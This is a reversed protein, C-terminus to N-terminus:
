IRAALSKTPPGHEGEVAERRRKPLDHVRVVPYLTEVLLHPPLGLSVGLEAALVRFFFEQDGQEVSVVELDAFPRDLSPFQKFLLKQAELLM